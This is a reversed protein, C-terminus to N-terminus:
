PQGEEGGTERALTEDASEDSLVAGLIYQIEALVDGELAELRAPDGALKLRTKPIPDAGEIHKGGVQNSLALIARLGEARQRLPAGKLYTFARLLKGSRPAMEDVPHRKM